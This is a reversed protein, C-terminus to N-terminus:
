KGPPSGPPLASSATSKAIFAVAADYGGRCGTAKDDPRASAFADCSLGFAEAFSCDLVRERAHKIHEATLAGISSSAVPSAATGASALLRETTAVSAAQVGCRTLLVGGDRYRKALGHGTDSVSISTDLDTITADGKDLTWATSSESVELRITARQVVAVTSPSAIFVEAGPRVTVAFDLDITGSAVLVVDPEDDTCPRFLAPGLVTVEHGTRRVALTVSAGAPLAISKVASVDDGPAYAHTGKVYAIACAPERHASADTSPRASTEASGISSASPTPSSGDAVLFTSSTPLAHGDGSTDRRCSLACLCGVVAATAVSEIAGRSPM